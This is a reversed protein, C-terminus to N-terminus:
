QGEVAASKAAKDLEVWAVCQEETLNPPLEGPDRGLHDWNRIWEKTESSLDKMSMEKGLPRGAKRRPFLHGWLLEFALLDHVQLEGSCPRGPAVRLLHTVHM